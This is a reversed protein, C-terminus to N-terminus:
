DLNKLKKRVVEIRSRVTREKLGLKTAIERTSFGCIKLYIIQMTLNNIEKMLEYLNQDELQNLLDDINNISLKFDNAQQKEVFKFNTTHRQKFRREANFLGWDFDRLEIIKKEPMGLERLRKEEEVKWKKWKKEESAKNFVM